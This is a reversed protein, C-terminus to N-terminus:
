GDCSADGTMWDILQEFGVGCYAAQEPALSTPTLGPQTNVELIYLGAAGQTEDFRFDTRTLGSCGLARHARLAYDLCLARIGEPIDAPVIHRSGGDSYKAEYDYFDNAAFIETVELAREGMVATTLERGPIFPEVLFETDSEEHAAILKRPSRKDGERMIYVGFSSGGRNPKIVHPRDMAPEDSFDERQWIEGKPVPLDANALVIKARTKDMALASAAVGSHTYPLRMTELVGQVVGDEGGLGHLGNFVIDPGAGAFSNKLQLALDPGADIEEVKHGLNRLAKAAAKGSVLSVERESSWGGLLVAINKQQSL